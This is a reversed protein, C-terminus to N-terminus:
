TRGRTELISDTSGRSRVISKTSREEEVAHADVSSGSLARGLEEGETVTVSVPSKDGGGAAAAATSFLPLGKSKKKKGEADGAAAAKFALMDALYIAEGDDDDVDKNRGAGSSGMQGLEASSSFNNYDNRQPTTYSNGHGHTSQLFRRFFLKLAPASACIVAFHTRM